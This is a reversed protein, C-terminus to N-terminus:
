PLQKANPAANRQKFKHLINIIISRIEAIGSQFIETMTFNLHKKLVWYGYVVGVIFTFISAVAVGYINHFLYIGLFDGSINVALMIFVKTMNKQPMNLIDLSIGFFRDVPLLIAFCMFIRFINAAPTPAFKAGGLIDVVIDAAIFGAISVPILLITLIGAYKKMIATMEKENHRHVAASMSPLATAIFSRLPIEIAEMLRQPLYYIGVLSPDAFM